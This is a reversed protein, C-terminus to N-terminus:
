RQQLVGNLYEAVLLDENYLAVEAFLTSLYHLKNIAEEGTECRLVSYNNSELVEKIRIEYM